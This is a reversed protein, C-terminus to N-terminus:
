QLARETSVGSQRYDAMVQMVTDEYVAGVRQLMELLLVTLSACHQYAIPKSVGCADAVKALTLSGAGDERAMRLATELLLEKRAAASMRKRKAPNEASGVSM